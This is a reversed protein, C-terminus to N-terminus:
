ALLGRASRSDVVLHTISKQKQNLIAKLVEDKPGGCNGCPGVLLLVQKRQKILAPLETLEMLTVTTMETSKKIPGTRSLPRWMMDGICGAEKLQRLSLPSTEKYISCLGSHGEQWHGGASTVIIDIEKARDYADRIYRISRLKEIEGTRVIGPALLGVFSTQVQLPPEGAFYTFFGNPDTSPDQVNFGAVMAHFVIRRPLYERPERLMEMFHRASKRLAKGGAFGIHVDADASRTRVLACVQEMLMEAVHYSIDDSVGTSVVRIGSLWPYLVDIRDSLEHAIPAQFRIWGKQAAFAVIRYPEERSLEIGLKSRVEHIIEAVPLGRCFYKCVAAVLEERTFAAHGKAAQRRIRESSSATKVM